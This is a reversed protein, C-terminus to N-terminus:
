MGLILKISKIQRIPKIGEPIVKANKDWVLILPWENAPLAKGNKLMALIVDDNKNLEKSNLTISYGDTATLRIEYGKLARAEMYTPISPDQMHPAYKPDDSYALFRWLPIGTYHASKGKREFFVTKKHCSLGSQLTQRNLTFNKDGEIRLSFDRYVEGKVSVKKIMRVSLHGEINPNNKGIKITRIYGPDKPLYKGNEKFALIWIGDSNDLLQKGPYSMEYGDMATFIITSSSKIKVFQNLFDALKVGAYLGSYKTGASTTFSGKGEIYYPSKELEGLSYSRDAGNVSLTLKFDKATNGSGTGTKGIALEIEAVNKVWLSKPVNGVISVPINKGNETDTLILDNYSYDKTNFTVSYGDEATVTIDYGKGWLTKDFKYPHASDNGDVVAAIQYFPMGTYLTTRGKKELKMTKRHNAHRLAEAFRSSTIEDKRVGILMIKWLTEAQKLSGSLGKKGSGPAGQAYVFSGSFVTLIFLVLYVTIVKQIISKGKM